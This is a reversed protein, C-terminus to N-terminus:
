FQIKHRKVSINLTLQLFFVHKTKESYKQQLIKSYVNDINLLPMINPFPTLLFHCEYASKGSKVQKSIVQRWIFLKTIKRLKESTWPLSVNIRSFGLQYKNKRKMQNTIQFLHVSPQHFKLVSCFPLCILGHGSRAFQKTCCTATVLRPPIQLTKPLNLTENISNKKRQHNKKKKTQKNQRELM